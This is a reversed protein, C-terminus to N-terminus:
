KTVDNKSINQNQNKEFKKIGYTEKARTSINQKINHQYINHKVLFNLCESLPWSRILYRVVKCNLNTNHRNVVM